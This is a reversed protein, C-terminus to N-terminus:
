TTRRRYTWMRFYQLLMRVGFKLLRNGDGQMYSPYLDWAFRMPTHCYCIHCTASPTLISKAAVYSSSIVVDYESLNFDQFALM